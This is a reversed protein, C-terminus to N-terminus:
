PSQRLTTGRVEFAASFDGCELREAVNRMARCERCRKSHPSKLAAKRGAIRVFDRHVNRGNLM